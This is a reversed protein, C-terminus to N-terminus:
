KAALFKEVTRRLHESNRTECEWVVLVKWGLGLLASENAKDRRANGQRKTQWFEPNTKPTVRGFPCDHLHWYCGRVEIVKRLRPFVLDPKGPLDSRHLRYRFGLRHAIRRVALEPKTDKSRIAVMNRRRQEASHVDAM